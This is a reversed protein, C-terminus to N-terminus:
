SKNIAAVVSQAANVGTEVAGNMYGQWVRSVHEGAFYLPSENIIESGYFKTWQGVSYCSTSGLSHPNSNWNTKASKGAYAISIGPYIKELQELKSKEWENPTLEESQIGKDGGSYLTLGFHKQKQLISNDWTKQFDLDTFATGSQNYNRWVADNFGLMLKTNTGYTLENIANRRVQSIPANIQIKRLVSYPIALIVHSYVFEKQGDATDFILEVAQIEKNANIQKISHGFKPKVIAAEAMKQVLLENGGKIKFRKDIAGYILFDEAEPEFISMFNMASLDRANIGFEAEFAIKLLKSFWPKLKLAKFYTEISISDYLRWQHVNGSEIFEPLTSIDIMFQESAGLELEVLCDQYSYSKGDIFYTSDSVSDTEIDLTELGLENILELIELHDSDIFEGGLEIVLSDGLIGAQTKVRGGLRNSAEYLDATIGYKELERLATLGALGAGIIAVQAQTTKENKCSTLLNAGLFVGSALMGTQKLFFRRDIGTKEANRKSIDHKLQRLLPHKFRRM